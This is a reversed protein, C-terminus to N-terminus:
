HRYAHNDESIRVLSGGFAIARQVELTSVQGCRAWIDIACSLRCHDVFVVSDLSRSGLEPLKRSKRHDNQTSGPWRNYLRYEGLSDYAALM